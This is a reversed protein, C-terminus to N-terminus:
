GRGGRTHRIAARAMEHARAQHGRGGSAGHAELEYFAVWRLFERWSMSRGLEAVSMGLERALFHAFRVM